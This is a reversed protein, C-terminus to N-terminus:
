FLRLQGNAPQPPRFDATNLPERNRDFGLRTEWLRFTAAILEAINGTGHHRQGFASNNVRGGRTSRILAEIRNRRDPYNRDLWDFFVERVSTPLRLLTFAARGAGAARAAQMIAPIESDNLGSIVPALM